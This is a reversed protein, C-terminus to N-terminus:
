CCWRSEPCCVALTHRGRTLRYTPADIRHLARALLWSGPRSTAVSRLVKQVSNAREFACTDIVRLSNAIEVASTSPRRRPRSQSTPLTSAGHRARVRTEASEVARVAGLHSQTHWRGVASVAGLHRHPRHSLGEGAATLGGDSDGTAEAPNVRYAYVLLGGLAVLHPIVLLLYFM